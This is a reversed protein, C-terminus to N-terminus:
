DYDDEEDDFEKMAGSVSDFSDDPLIEKLKRDIHELEQKLEAKPAAIKGGHKKKLKPINEM